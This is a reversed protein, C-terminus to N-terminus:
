KLRLLVGDRSTKMGWRKLVSGSRLDLLLLFSFSLFRFTTQFKNGNLNACFVMNSECCSFELTVYNLCVFM